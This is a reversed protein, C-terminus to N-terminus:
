SASVWRRYFGSDLRIQNVGPEDVRLRIEYTGPTRPEWCHSWLTWTNNTSVKPCVDVPVYPAATGLRISLKSTPREGGWLIGVVKYAERGDVRWREVRVPTASYGM